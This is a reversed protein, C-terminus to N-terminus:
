SEKHYKVGKVIEGGAISETELEVDSIVGVRVWKDICNTKNFSELTVYGLFQPGPTDIDCFVVESPYYKHGKKDIFSPRDM